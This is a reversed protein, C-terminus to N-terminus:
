NIKVQYVKHQPVVVDFLLQPVPRGIVHLYSTQLQLLFLLHVAQRVLGAEPKGLVGHSMAIVIDATVMRVDGTMKEFPNLIQLCLKTM